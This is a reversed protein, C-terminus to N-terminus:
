ARKVVTVPVTFGDGAVTLTVAALSACPRGMFGALTGFTVTYGTPAPVAAPDFAADPTACLAPTLPVSKVYEAAAMAFSQAESQSRNTVTTSANVALAGVLAVVAIGLIALAVLIEILTDGVDGAGQRVM